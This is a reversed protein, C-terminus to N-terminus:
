GLNLWDIDKIAFPEKDRPLRLPHSPHGRDTLQLAYLESAYERMFKASRGHLSGRVGWGAVVKEVHQFLEAVVQDNYVSQIMSKM